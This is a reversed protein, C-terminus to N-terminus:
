INPNDFDKTKPHKLYYKKEYDDAFNNISENSTNKLQAICENDSHKKDLITVDESFNEKLFERHESARSGEYKTKISTFTKKLSTSIHVYTNPLLAAYKSEQFHKILNSDIQIKLYNALKRYDELNNFLFQNYYDIPINIKEKAQKSVSSYINNVLNTENFLEKGDKNRVACLINVDFCPINRDYSTRKRLGYVILYPKVKLDKYAKNLVYKIAKDLLVFNTLINELAEDSTNEDFTLVFWKCNQFGYDSGLTYTALDIEEKQKSSFGNFGKPVKPKRQKYPTKALYVSNDTNRTKSIILGDKRIRQSTYKDQNDQNKDSKENSNM